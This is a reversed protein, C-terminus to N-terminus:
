VRRAMGQRVPAPVIRVIEVARAAHPVLFGRVNREAQAPDDADTTFVEIGGGTSPTRRIYILYRAM